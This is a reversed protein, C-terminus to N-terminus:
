EIKKKVKPEFHALVRIISIHRSWFTRNKKQIVYINVVDSFM